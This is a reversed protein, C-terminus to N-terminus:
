AQSADAPRESDKEEETTGSKISSAVLSRADKLLTSWTRTLPSFLACVVPTHVSM